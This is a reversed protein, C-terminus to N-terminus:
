ADHQDSIQTIEVLNPTLMHTQFNPKM